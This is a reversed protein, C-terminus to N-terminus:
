DRSDVREKAVSFYNPDIEFGIFKAARCAQAAIATSGLGLFPDMVVQNEAGHLLLCHEALEVPFTAPHPRQKERSRITRYPIFWVNGRCRRDRGDAHAWRTVNSKDAYPVGIALRDIAVEGTKTLHFVYEHCDNLRRKSNIPKFHGRSIVTDDDNTISISKVWHITNQLRFLEDTVRLLLEHPLLPDLSGSGLNLFLAGDDHLVRKIEAAWQVCWILYEDRDKRDSYSTYEIGLNYPPSTVVVDVSQAPLGRMGALCDMQRLEFQTVASRRDAELAEEPSSEADGM